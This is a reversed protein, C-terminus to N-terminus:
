KQLQFRKEIYTAAYAETQESSQFVKPTRTEPDRILEGLFLTNPEKFKFFCICEGITGIQSGADDSEYQQLQMIFLWVQINGYTLTRVV